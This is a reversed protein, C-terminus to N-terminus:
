RPAQRGPLRALQPWRHRSRHEVGVGVGDGRGEGTCVRHRVLVGLTLMASLASRATLMAAGHATLLAVVRACPPWPALTARRVTAKDVFAIRMEQGAVHWYVRCAATFHFSYPRLRAVPPLKEIMRRLISNLGKYSDELPRFALEVGAGCVCARPPEFAHRTSVACPGDSVWRVGMPCASPTPVRQTPIGQTKIRIDLDLDLEVMGDQSKFRNLSEIRKLKEMQDDGNIAANFKSQVRKYLADPTLATLWQQIRTPPETPDPAPASGQSPAAQSAQAAAPAAGLGAALINVGGEFTKGVNNVGGELTKGVNAVGGEIQAAGELLVGPFLSGEARKRRRRAAMAADAPGADDDDDPADPDTPYIPIAFLFGLGYGLLARLGRIAIWWCWPYWYWLSALSVGVVALMSPLVFFITAALGDLQSPMSRRWLRKLVTRPAVDSALARSISFIACIVLYWWGIGMALGLTGGFIVGTDFGVVEPRMARLKKLEARRKACPRLAVSLEPVVAMSISNYGYEDLAGKDVRHTRMVLMGSDYGESDPGYDDLLMKGLKDRITNNLPQVIADVLQVAFKPHRQLVSVFAGDSGSNAAMWLYMRVGAAKSSQITRSALKGVEEPSLHYLMSGFRELASKSGGAIAREFARRSQPQLLIDTLTSRTESVGRFNAQVRTVADVSKKSVTDMVSKKKTRAKQQIRTAAKAMAEADAAKAVSKSVAKVASQSGEVIKKSAGSALAVVGEGGQIGRSTSADAEGENPRSRRPSAGGISKRVRSLGALM